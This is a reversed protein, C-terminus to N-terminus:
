VPYGLQEVNVGLREGLRVNGAAFVSNLASMVDPPIIANKHRFRKRFIRQAFSLQRGSTGDLDVQQGRNFSKGEPTYPLSRVGLFGALADLSAAESAELM